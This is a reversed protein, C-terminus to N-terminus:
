RYPRRQAHYLCHPIKASTHTYGHCCGGKRPLLYHWHEQGTKPSALMNAEDGHLLLHFRLQEDHSYFSLSPTEGDILTCKFLAVQTADLLQLTPSGEMNVSVSVRKQGNADHLRIHPTGDNEVFLALREQGNRDYMLLAPGDRGDM